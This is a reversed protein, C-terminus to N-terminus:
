PALGAWSCPKKSDSFMSMDIGIESIIATASKNTIGPITSLLDIQLQFESSLLSIAEDLQEICKNIAEFNNLCTKTKNWQESSISGDISKKIDDAKPLLKKYLMSTVDFDKQKPNDSMFKIIVQSSKGFTDSVVSSIM